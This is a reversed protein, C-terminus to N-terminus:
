LLPHRKHMVPSNYIYVWRMMQKCVHIYIYMYSIYLHLYWWIDRYVCWYIFPFFMSMSLL